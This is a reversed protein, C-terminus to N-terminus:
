RLGVLAILPRNNDADLYGVTLDLPEHDLVDFTVLRNFRPRICGADGDTEYLLLGGDWYTWRSPTLYLIFLVRRDAHWKEITSEPRIKEIVWTSAELTDEDVDSALWKEKVADMLEFVPSHRFDIATKPVARWIEDTYKEWKWGDPSSNKNTSEPNAGNCFEQLVQRSHSTDECDMSDLGNGRYPYTSYDYDYILSFKGFARSADEVSVSALFRRTRKMLEPDIASDCVLAGAKKRFNFGEEAATVEKPIFARLLDLRNDAVKETM